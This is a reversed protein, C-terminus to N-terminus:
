IFHLLWSTIRKLMWTYYTCNAEDKCLEFIKQADSNIIAHPFSKSLYDKKLSRIDLWTSDKLEEFIENVIQIDPKIRFRIKQIIDSRFVNILEYKIYDDAKHYDYYEILEKKKHYLYKLNMYLFPNYKSTMGGFRYNYGIYDSIYIRRLHPFLILNFYLDEGMKLGSPKLCARSLVEKRYLKGWINIPLINYGFFSIYYKDFLEPQQIIGIVPSVSKRKILGYEDMVRQMGVEVYDCFYKEALNTMHMITDSEIWDDSDIFTVYKGNSRNLGDFRAKDVGENEKNIILVRSDRKEYDKCISLSSDTSGDNVLILEFDSYSQSLVSDLCRRIYKSTNYIPVIISVMM